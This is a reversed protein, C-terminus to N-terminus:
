ALTSASVTKGSNKASSDPWPDEEESSSQTEEVRVSQGRSRTSQCFVSRGNRPVFFFPPIGWSLASLRIVLATRPPAPHCFTLYVGNSGSSHAPFLKSSSAYFHCACFKRCSELGEVGEFGETTRNDSKIFVSTGCVLRLRFIGRCHCCVLRFSQLLHSAFVCCVFICIRKLIKCHNGDVLISKPESHRPPFFFSAAGRM